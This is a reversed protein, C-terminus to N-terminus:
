ATVELQPAFVLDQEQRELGKLFVRFLLQILIAQLVLDWAILALAILPTEDLARWRDFFDTEILPILLEFLILLGAVKFFHRRVLQASTKLADAQGLDYAKSAAVVFPVFVLQLLRFFAPIILFLGWLLISGWTRLNEIYLQELCRRAFSGFDKQWGRSRFLGFLLCFTILVPFFLSNLISFGAALLINQTQATEAYLAAELFRALLQDIWTMVLLLLFAPLAVARLIQWTEKFFPM